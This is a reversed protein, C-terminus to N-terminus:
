TRGRVIGAPILERQTHDGANWAKATTGGFGREVTATTASLSPATIKVLENTPGPTGGAVHILGVDFEPAVIARLNALKASAITTDSDSIGASLTGPGIGGQYGRAM